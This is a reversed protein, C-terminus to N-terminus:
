ASPVAAAQRAAAHKRCIRCSLGQCRHSNDQVFCRVLKTLDTCFDIESQIEQRSRLAHDLYVASLSFHLSSSLANLAILLCTSDPGGSLAVLVKDSRRVLAQKVICARVKLVLPDKNM